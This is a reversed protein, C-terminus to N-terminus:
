LAIVMLLLSKDEQQPHWIEAFLETVENQPLTEDLDIRTCNLKPHELAIVKGMGWLCSGAIGSASSIAGRTVLVLRPSQSCKATLAQVLHLTSSCGLKTAAELDAITLEEHISDLSWLHVVNSLNHEKDALDELLRQFHTSNTYDIQFQQLNRQYENGSFVLICKQNQATLLTALEQGLGSKDALILWTHDCKETIFTKQRELIQWQVEYLWDQWSEDKGLLAKRSAQRSILGNIEVVLNGVEDYCISM